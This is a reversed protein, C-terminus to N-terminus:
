GPGSDRISSTTGPRTCRTPSTSGAGTSRCSSCRRARGDPRPRRREAQGAGRRALAPRDAAPQRSRLHRVPAPRRAALQLLVPLPRGDLRRPRHDAGARPFPWGTSSSESDVAIVQSPRPLQRQRPPLAVDHEVARRRRLGARRRPRAALAGRAPGAGARRPRDDARAPARRPGLLPAPQGYRGAAVDDLDFGSEYANPEGFESSISCTRARSTGSTTTSRRARAATRGAARSRSRRRTSCPSAAPATATPTASCASSSTTARCATSPTRARTAPRRARARRARDGERDAPAAPRRGRQRRPHAVLPLRARDPALPGPRPLRLQLPELRLPAARRRREADADRPRDPRGRRRGRRPLGAGRRRHGRAPLRPLPVGGAPAQLAEAPSAHFSQPKDHRHEM